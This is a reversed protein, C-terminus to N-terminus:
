TGGLVLDGIYDYQIIVDLFNLRPIMRNHATGIQIEGTAGLIDEILAIKIRKRQVYTHIYTKVNVKKSSVLGTTEDQM